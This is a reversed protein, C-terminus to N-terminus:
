SRPEHDSSGSNNSPRARSRNGGKRFRNGKGKGKGKFGGKTAPFPQQQDTRPRKASPGQGQQAPRKRSAPSPSFVRAKDGPTSLTVTSKKGSAQSLTLTATDLKEPVLAEWEGHFLSPGELSLRRLKDKLAKGEVTTALALYRDRREKRVGLAIRFSFEAVVRNLEQVLTLASSAASTVTQGPTLSTILAGLLLSSYNAMRAMVLGLRELRFLLTCEERKSTPLHDSTHATNLGADSAVRTKVEDEPAAVQFFSRFHLKVVRIAHDLDAMRPNLPKKSKSVAIFIDHIDVAMPLVLRPSEKPSAAEGMFAVDGESPTPVEESEFSYPRGFIDFVWRLTADLTEPTFSSPPAVQPDSGGKTEHGTPVQVQGPEDPLLPSSKSASLTSPGAIPLGSGGSGLASLGTTPLTDGTARSDALTLSAVSSPTPPGMTPRGGGGSGSALPGTTLLAEGTTRSGEPALLDSSHGESELGTPGYLLVSEAEESVPDEELAALQNSFAAQNSKISKIEAVLIQFMNTLSPSEVSHGPDGVVVGHTSTPLPGPHLLADLGSPSSTGMPDLFPPPGAPSPSTDLADSTSPSKSM